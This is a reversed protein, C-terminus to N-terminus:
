SATFRLGQDYRARFLYGLVRRALEATAVEQEAAEKFLRLAGLAERHVGKSEFVKSLEKALVKVEATRGEELLLVAEELLALAVDYGMGRSAFARRAKALLGLAERTRGLGAAVRGELWVGRLALLEDGREGSRTHVAHGLEAAEGHRGLHTLSLALNHHLIDWLRDDGSREVLPQAELLAEVAREYYGMVELTFGKNILYRERCRGVRLAEELLALAEDFRRQDRRLSAELDLLRGPDLVADPDSGAQWLRLAEMLTVEAPELEGPVRLSNAVHAAAYGRIRHRWGEPGQVQEAIEQAVRALSATRAVDRSAQFVSEECVLEALAWTQFEGAVRVVALQQDEPLEALRAWAEAAQWRAPEVDALRPYADPAPPERSRLAAETLIRRSLRSIELNAEEVKDREAATLETDRELAELNELCATVVAVEAPRAQLGALLRDFLAEAAVGGKRLHYSISSEVLGAKAGVEKQSLGRWLALMSVLLSRFSRIM